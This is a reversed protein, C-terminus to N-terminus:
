PLYIRKTEHGKGDLISNTSFGKSSLRPTPTSKRKFIDSVAVSELLVFRILPHCLM